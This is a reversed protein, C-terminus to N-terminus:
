RANNYEERRIQQELIELMYKINDLTYRHDCPLWLIQEVLNKEVKSAGVTEKVEKWYQPVFIKREILKKRIAEGDEIFFPYSFPGKVNENVKVLNQHKLHEHLYLFNKNRQEIIYQYDLSKLINETLRSMLKITRDTFTDEHNQFDEYFSQADYEYRGLLYKMAEFSVDTEFTCDNELNSYLFGGDAVGVFKRCSYLTDIGNIPQGFYNQVNDLIINKYKQKLSSVYSNELFGCYNVVYLYDQTIDFENQFDEEILFEQNIHYFFIECGEELCVEKIVGCLYYPIFIRKINRKRLLFRLCNRASNFKLAKNHYLEGRYEEFGFYGGIEMDSM